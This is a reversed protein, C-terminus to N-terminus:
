LGVEMDHTDERHIKFDWKWTMIPGGHIEFDWKWAM